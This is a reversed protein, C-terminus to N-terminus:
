CGQEGVVEQFSGGISSLASPATAQLSRNAGRRSRPPFAQKM